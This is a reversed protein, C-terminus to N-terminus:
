FGKNKAVKKVARKVIALKQQKPLKVPKTFKSIDFKPLKADRLNKPASISVSVSKRPKALKAMKAAVRPLSGSKIKTFSLAM